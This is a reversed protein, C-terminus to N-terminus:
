RGQLEPEVADAVSAGQPQQVAFDVADAGGLPDKAGPADLTAGHLILRGRDRVGLGSDHAHPTPQCVDLCGRRMADAVPDDMTTGSQLCVTHDIRAHLGFEFEGDVERREVEGRCQCHDAVVAVWKGPSGCTAQRSVQKWAAMGGTARM